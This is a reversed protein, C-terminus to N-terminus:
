SGAPVHTAAVDPVGDDDHTLGTMAWPAALLTALIGDDRSQVGTPTQKSTSVFGFGCRRLLRHLKPDQAGLRVAWCGESAATAAAARLLQPMTREAETAVAWWDIAHLETRGDAARELRWVLAGVRSPGRFAGLMGYRARPNDFFRHNIREATRYVDVADYPRADDLPDGGPLREIAEIRLGHRPALARGTRGIGSAINALAAAPPVWSQDGFRRGFYPGWDLALTFTLLPPLPRYMREVIGISNDNGGIALAFGAREVAAQNLWPGLGSNLARPAVLLDMPRVGAVHRTVVACDIEEVGIMGLLEGAHDVVWLEGLATCHRGLRYRWSLYSGDNWAAPGGREITRQEVIRPLDDIRAPRFAATLQDPSLGLARATLRTTVAFSPSAM